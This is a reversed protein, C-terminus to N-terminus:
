QGLARIRAASRVVDDNGGARVGAYAIVLGLAGGFMSLVLSETVLQRV